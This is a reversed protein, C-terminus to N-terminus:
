VQENENEVEVEEAAAGNISAMLVIFGTILFWGWGDRGAYCLWGGTTSIVAGSLVGLLYVFKIIM